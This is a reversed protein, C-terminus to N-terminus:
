RKEGSAQSLSYTVVKGAFARFDQLHRTCIAYVIAWDIDEYDHVAVNRFGVARKLNTAVTDDIIHLKALTVFSEGMTAPASEPTDAILHSAIDVCLQVARTLNLVVVDQIDPDDLLTQLDPPTKTEVRLICRRLSELKQAIVQQDM